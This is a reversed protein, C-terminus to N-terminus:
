ALRSVVLKMRYIAKAWLRKPMFLLLFFNKDCMAQQFKIEENLWNIRKIVESEFKRNTGKNFSELLLKHQEHIFTRHGKLTSTVSTGKQNIRYVSMVDHLYHIKGINMARLILSYDESYIRKLWKPYNCAIERKVIISATPVYWKHIADHVCLDGDELINNFVSWKNDDVNYKLANHFCLSYDKHKEMFDVQKQLKLPDIWYDDGECIAIYKGRAEKLTWCWNCSRVVHAQDDLIRCMERSRNYFRIRDPYQEAYHKCIETTGDISGDDGIVIEVLFSTKQMLAGEICEEMYNVHQYTPICVSVIPALSNVKKDNGLFESQLNFLIEEREEVSKLQFSDFDVGYHQLKVRQKNLMEMYVRRTDM